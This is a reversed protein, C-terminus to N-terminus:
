LLEALWGSGSVLGQSRPDATSARDQVSLMEGTGDEAAPLHLPERGAAAQSEHEPHGYKCDGVVGLM